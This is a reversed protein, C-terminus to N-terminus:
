RYNQFNFDHTAANVNGIYLTRDEDNLDLTLTRDATADEGPAIIYDHDGGTDLLHLGNNIVTITGALTLSLDNSFRFAETLTQGGDVSVLGVIRGPMDNAGPTGDVEFRIEAATAYDTGDYGTGIFRALADGSQVITPVAGTGRSRAGYIVGGWAATDNHAHAEFIAETSSDTHGSFKSGFESGNVTMTFEAEGIAVRSNTEDFFLGTSNDGLRIQGKTANSTSSLDLNDSADTGGTIIQGGSEGSLKVLDEARASIFVTADGSLNIKSTGATGGIKSLTVTDRSLTTGSSTYTGIGIEFDDGDELCYAVVDGNQVGAEAFSAYGTSASGLTITGTGTTATSMRARNYFLAM